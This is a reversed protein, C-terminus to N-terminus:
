IAKLTTAAQLILKVQLQTLLLELFASALAVHIKKGTAGDLGFNNDCPHHEYLQGAGMINQPEPPVSETSFGGYPEPLQGTFLSTDHFPSSEGATIANPPRLSGTMSMNMVPPNSYPQLVPNQHPGSPNTIVAPSPRNIINASANNGHHITSANLLGGTALPIGPFNPERFISFPIPPFQSGTSSLPYGLLMGVQNHNPSIPPMHSQPYASNPQNHFGYIGFNCDSLTNMPPFSGTNATNPASSLGHSTAQPYSVLPQLPVNSALAPFPDCWSGNASFANPIALPRSSM